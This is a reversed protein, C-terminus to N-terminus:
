AAIHLFWGNRECAQVYRQLLDSSMALSANKLALAAEEFLGVDLWHAAIDRVKERDGARAYARVAATLWGFEEFSRGAARLVDSPIGESVAIADDVFGKALLDVVDSTSGQQRAFDRFESSTRINLRRPQPKRTVREQPTERPGM